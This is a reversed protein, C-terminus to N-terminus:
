SVNRNCVPAYACQSCIVLDSCQSFPITSDFVEDLIDNLIQKFNDSIQSNFVNGQPTNVFKPGGSLQRFSIIASKIGSELGNQRAYVFSYFLLQFCKDLKSESILNDWDKFSLDSDKVYGTKYDILLYENNIKDIRDIQGILNVTHGNTLLLETKINQETGIPMIVQNSSASERLRELEQLLFREMLRKSVEVLLHSKGINLEGQPFHKLFSDLILNPVETRMRNIKEESLQGDQCIPAYLNELVEHLATGLTQADITESIEELEKIGAIDSFYFQLSCRRYKNISTPSFGREAKNELAKLINERKQILIPEDKEQEYGPASLLSEEIEIEPNYKRLENLIQLIFRSKDGGNLKGAETNYILFICKPRQLLRYFHYATVAQKERFTPLGFENRIEYPIFGQLGSGSPLIGENVNMVIVNDFDLTRTELMGMIQLGKLPEGYFPIKVRQVAQRYLKQLSRLDMKVPYNELFDKMTAFLGSFHFLFERTLLEPTLGTDKTKEFSLDTNEKFLLILHQCSSIFKEPDEAKDFIFSLSNFTEESNNFIIQHIEEKTFYIKNSNLIQESTTSDQNLSVELASRVYPHQFFLLLNRFYFRNSSKVAHIHLEFFSEFLQHLSVGSMPLGMTINMGGIGEPLSNLMPMLMDEKGLVLATTSLDDGSNNIDKIIQGVAKAQGINKAVGLLAIKKPGTRFEDTIWKIEKLNKNLFSKRLFTGAEQIENDLYYHDADWLIDAKGSSVLCNIIKEESKTMANFGAFIIKEWPINLESSDIKEALERYAMGQTAKGKENLSRKLGNYYDILSRFFELYRQEFDTLENKDPSWLSIAKSDTLYTFISRADALYHDIEEFDELATPAWDIFDDFSQTTNGIQQHVHFMEFLLEENQVPTKETLHFIFDEISYCNPFWVPKDILDALHKRLFVSARRNPFVLALKQFNGSYNDNIHKAVKLLFGEM